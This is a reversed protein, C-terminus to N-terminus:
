KKRLQRPQNFKAQPKFTESVDISVRTRIFIHKKGLILPNNSHM